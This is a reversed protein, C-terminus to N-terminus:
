MTARTLFINVKMPELGVERREENEILVKQITDSIVSKEHDTLLGMLLGRGGCSQCGKKGKHGTGNCSGCPIGVTDSNM